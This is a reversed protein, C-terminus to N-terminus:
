RVGQVGGPAKDSQERETEVASGITVNAGFGMASLVKGLVVGVVVVLAGVFFLWVFAVVVAIGMVLSGLLIVGVAAWAATSHGHDEHHEQPAPAKTTSSRQPTTKEAM